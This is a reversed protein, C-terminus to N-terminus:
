PIGTPATLSPIKAAASAIPLTEGYEEKRLQLDTRGVISTHGHGGTATTIELSGVSGFSAGAVM